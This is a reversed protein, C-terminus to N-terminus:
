QNSIKDMDFIVAEGCKSCIEVAVGCQKLYIEIQEIYGKYQKLEEQKAIITAVKALINRAKALRNLEDNSIEECGQLDILSAQQKLQRLREISTRAKNINSVTVESIENLNAISSISGSEAVKKNLIGLKSIISQAKELRSVDIEAISSINSYLKTLNNKDGITQLLRSVRNIKDAMVTNLAALGYIDILALAGLRNQLETIRDKYDLVKELKNLREVQSKVRNKIDVLPEIDYVAIDRLQTNLTQMSNDNQNIKSKLANAEASGNRIAKTLQEVKLANYMVKYNTSSPTVVFLLKDEYTRIHLYEGTEPETILGMIQQVKVPLGESLKTYETEHGNSETIHYYNVGNAEKIRLISAGDALNIEIGLMNTGDRIYDKQERPNDHLACMAFAKIISTKGAENEGVLTVIPSQTFDITVDGINRFNKVRMKEIPSYSYM